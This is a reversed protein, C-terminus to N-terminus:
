ADAEPAEEEGNEDELLRRIERVDDKIDGLLAMITTVDRHEVPPEIAVDDREDGSWALSCEPGPRTAGPGGRAYTARTSPAIM